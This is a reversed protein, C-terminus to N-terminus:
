HKNYVQPSRINETSSKGGMRKFSIQFIMLESFNGKATTLGELIWVLIFCWSFFHVYLVYIYVKKCANPKDNKKANWQWILSSEKRKGVRENCTQLQASVLSSSVWWPFPFLHMKKTIRGIWFLWFCTCNFGNATSWVDLLYVQALKVEGHVNLTISPVFGPQLHPNRWRISRLVGKKKFWGPWPKQSFGQTKPTKWNGRLAGYSPVLLYLPIVARVRFFFIPTPM